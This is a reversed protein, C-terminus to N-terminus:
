RATANARQLRTGLLEIGSQLHDRMARRAAQPSRARAADLLAAHQDRLVTPSGDPPEALVLYMYRAHAQWLLDLLRQDWESAAARTLRRHFETHRASLSEADDDARVALADFVEELAEIDEDTYRRAARTVVDAELLVRLRFVSQMDEMSLPAVVASRGRRLEILGDGELRRLAERVPIHSVDLRESLEAISIPAGPSLTGDLISRRVEDIVLDVISRQAVPRV